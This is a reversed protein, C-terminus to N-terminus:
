QMAHWPWAIVTLINEGTGISCIVLRATSEWDCVETASALISIFLDANKQKAKEVRGQLTLFMDSSRTLYVRFGRRELEKKLLKTIKLNLHKEKIGRKSIAGPDKGGHGPDLVITKIAIAPIEPTPIKRM